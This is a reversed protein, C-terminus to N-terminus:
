KVGLSLSGPMGTGADITLCMILLFCVYSTHSLLGTMGRWQSSIVQNSFNRLMLTGPVEIQTCGSALFCHWIVGTREEKGFFKAKYKDVWWVRTQNHNKKNLCNTFNLCFSTNKSAAKIQKKERYYLFSYPMEKIPNDQLILFQDSYRKIETWMESNLYASGRGSLLLEEWM